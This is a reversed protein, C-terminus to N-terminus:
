KVPLGRDPCTQVVEVYRYLSFFGSLMRPRGLWWERRRLLDVTVRAVSTLTDVIMVAVAHVVLCQLVRHLM